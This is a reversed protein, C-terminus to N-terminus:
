ILNVIRESCWAQAPSLLHMTTPFVLHLFFSADTEITRKKGAWDGLSVGRATYMHLGPFLSSGVTFCKTSPTNIQLGCVITEEPSFLFSYFNYRWSGKSFLQNFGVAKVFWFEQNQSRLNCHPQFNISETCLPFFSANSFHFSPQTYRANTDPLFSQLVRIILSHSDM